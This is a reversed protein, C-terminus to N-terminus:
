DIVSTLRRYELLMQARWRVIMGFALVFFLAATQQVTLLTDFYGRALFRVAALVLIMAFFASSRQMMIAEGQRVLRSTRLLPYALGVTGVLFALGAWTWPIRFAPVAFMSFGTAMGMPPAVIKKVSVATRGERVRWIMIATLGAVSGAISTGDPIQILGLM